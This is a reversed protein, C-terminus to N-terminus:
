ITQNHTKTYKKSDTRSPHEYELSRIHEYDHRKNFKPSTWGNNRPINKRNREKERRSRLLGWHAHQEAQNHRVLVKPENWKEEIIKKKNTLSM